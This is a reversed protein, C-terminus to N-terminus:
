ADDDEGGDLDAPDEGLAAVDLTIPWPVDTSFTGTFRGVLKYAKGVLIHETLSPEDGSDGLEVRWFSPIGAEAYIAPKTLRDMLRSGPSMVEVALRVNEPRVKPQKFRRMSRPGVVVDPQLYTRGDPTIWVDVAIAATWGDPASEVLVNRLVACADQHLWLPAPSVILNGEIIEYRSGEPLDELDWAHWAGTGHHALEATLNKEESVQEHDRIQGPKTTAVAGLNPREM